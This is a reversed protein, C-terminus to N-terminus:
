RIRLIKKLLLMSPISVLFYATLWPPMALWGIGGILGFLRSEEMHTEIALVKEDDYRQVAPEYIRQGVRVGKHYTTGSYRFTLDYLQDSARAHLEWQARCYTQARQQVLSAQQVWGSACEVGEVPVLHLIRGDASVPLYMAVQLDQNARLPVYAVRQCAWMALLAVPILSVMLPKIESRAKVMAIMSRTTRYRLLAETDKSRRALRALNKLRSQDRACRALLDQDTTFRRIVVLIAATLVSLAILTLSRPGALLWGFVADMM